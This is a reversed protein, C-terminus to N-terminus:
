SHCYLTACQIRQYLLSRDGRGGFTGDGDFWGHRPPSTRVHSDTGALMKTVISTTGAGVRQVDLCRRHDDNVNTRETDRLGKQTTRVELISLYWFYFRQSHICLTNAKAVTKIHSSNTSHLIPITPDNRLYMWDTYRCMGETWTLPSM